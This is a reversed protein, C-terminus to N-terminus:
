STLDYTISPYKALTNNYSYKVTYSQDYTVKMLDTLIKNADSLTGTKVTVTGTTGSSSSDVMTADATYYDKYRARSTSIINKAASIAGAFMILALSSILLAILTEAITEGKANGIKKSLLRKM